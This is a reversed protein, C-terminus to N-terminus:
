RRDDSWQTPDTIFADPNTGEAITETDMAM